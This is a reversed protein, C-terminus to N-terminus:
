SVTTGTQRLPSSTLLVRISSDMTWRKERNCPTTWRKHQLWPPSRLTCASICTSKSKRQSPLQVTAILHEPLIRPADEFGTGANSAMPSTRHRCTSHASATEPKRERARSCRMECSVLVLVGLAKGSSARQKSCWLVASIGEKQVVLEEFSPFDDEADPDGPVADLSAELSDSHPLAAPRGKM